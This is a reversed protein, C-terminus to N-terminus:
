AGSLLPQDIRVQRSVGREWPFRGKHDPWVLQLVAFPKGGHWALAAPCFEELHGEEVPLFHCPAGGLFDRCVAGVPLVGGALVFAAVEDLVGRLVGEPLGLVVLEARGAGDALGATAGHAPKPGAAEHWELYWGDRAITTRITEMMEPM